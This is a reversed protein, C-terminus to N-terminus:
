RGLVVPGDYARIHLPKSITMPENYSGTRIWLSENVSTGAVGQALTFYPGFLGFCDKFGSAFACPSSQDVYRSAPGAVLEVAACALYLNHRDATGWRLNVAAQTLANYLDTWNAAATLLNVNVEYYLDAVTPIGMGYVTQGNFTDGDTLLYCLKNNVGSNWHVGGFDETGTYYLPSGLRDACNYNTPYQMSRLAGRALDEGILWRAGPSDDGAGNGLDIFEGWIDSFSENIAGSVQSYILGSEFETVGHTLEHGTVDDTAWGAGFYMRGQFWAANPWPCAADAWCRRVTASLNTGRGDISDRGHNLNYFQWTQGLYEYANNADAVTSAPQGELRAM